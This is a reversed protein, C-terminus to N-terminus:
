SGRLGEAAAMMVWHPLSMGQLAAMPDVPPAGISVEEQHRPGGHIGRGGAARYDAPGMRVGAGSTGPGDMNGRGRGLMNGRVGGQMSRGDLRPRGRGRTSPAPDYAPDAEM